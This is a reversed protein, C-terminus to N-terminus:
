TRRQPRLQSRITPITVPDRISLDIYPTLLEDKVMQWIIRTMEDGDMEVLPTTMKIKEM